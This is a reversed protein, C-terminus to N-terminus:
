RIRTSRDLFIKKLTHYAPKPKGEFDIISTNVPVPVCDHGMWIIIGGCRPFRDKCAKVAQALVRAQNAQSREVYDELSCGTALQEQIWWASLHQWYPNKHTVPQASCSGRYCEILAFDSAGPMGVESRFLADDNAWYQEADPEEAWPGHVDHHIGKGFNERRAKFNPGSASTPLFRVGPDEREVVDGLAKLCPHSIDLPRGTGDSGDQATQLENGGCWLLKSVHHGRRRIYDKAIDCLKVIIEPDTPANNEPGASSLPFEQWVLIGARDCARYFDERELFAGGWVRLLNCGMERYREVMTDYDDTTVSHYDMRLPTWNVGQLFTPVGNVECIWPEAGAPAGECAVWRISKFGIAITEDGIRLDYLVAEGSGNPQWPKVIQEWVLHHVGVPLTEVRNEFTVTTSEHCDIVLRIQGTKGDPL